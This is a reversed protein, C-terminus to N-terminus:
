WLLGPMEPGSRLLVTHTTEGQLVIGPNDDHVSALRDEETVLPVLLIRVQAGEFSMLLFIRRGALLPRASRSPGAIREAVAAGHLLGIELLQALLAEADLDHLTEVIGGVLALEVLQDQARRRAQHAHDAFLHVLAHAVPQDGLDVLVQGAVRD